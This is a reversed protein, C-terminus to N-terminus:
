THVSCRTRPVAAAYDYLVRILLFKKTHSGVATVYICVDYLHVKPSRIADIAHSGAKMHLVSTCVYSQGNTYTTCLTVFTTDRLSM